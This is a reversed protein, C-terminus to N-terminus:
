EQRTRSSKMRNACGMIQYMFIEDFSGIPSFTDIEGLLADLERFNGCSIGLDGLKQEARLIDDECLLFRIMGRHEEVRNELNTKWRGFLKPTESSAYISDHSWIKDCLYWRELLDDFIIHAEITQDDITCKKLFINADM